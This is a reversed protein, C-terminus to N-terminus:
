RPAAPRSPGSPLGPPALLTPSRPVSVSSTRLLQHQVAVDEDVRVDVHGHQARQRRRPDRPRALEPGVADELVEPVVVAHRPGVPEVLQERLLADVMRQQEALVRRLRGAVLPELVQQRDHLVVRGPEPGDGVDVRVQVERDGVLYAPLEVQPRGRQLQVRHV